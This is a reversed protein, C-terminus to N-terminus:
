IVRQNFIYKQTLSHETWHQGGILHLEIGYLRSKHCKWILYQNIGLVSENKCMFIQLYLYITHIGKILRM